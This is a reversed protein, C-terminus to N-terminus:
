MCDAKAMESSSFFSCSSAERLAMLSAKLRTTMRRSSMMGYWLSLPNRIIPSNSKRRLGLLKSKYYLYGVSNGAIFPSGVNYFYHHKLLIHLFNIRYSCYSSKLHIIKISQIVQYGLHFWLYIIPLIRCLSRGQEYNKRGYELTNIIYFKIISYADDYM